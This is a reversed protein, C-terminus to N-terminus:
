GLTCHRPCASPTCVPRTCGGSAAPGHTRGGPHASAASGGAGARRPAASDTPGRRRGWGARCVAQMTIGRQAPEQIDAQRQRRRPLKEVLSSPPPAELARVPARTAIAAGDSSTTVPIPPLFPWWCFGGSTYIIYITNCVYLHPTVSLPLRRTRRAMESFTFNNITTILACHYIRLQFCCLALRLIQM